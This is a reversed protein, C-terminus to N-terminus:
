DRRHHLLRPDRRPRSRRAHRRGGGAGEGLGAARGDFATPDRRSIALVDNVHQRARFAIAGSCSPRRRRTRWCSRRRGTRSWALLRHAAAARRCLPEEGVGHQLVRLRSGEAHHAFPNRAGNSPEERRDDGARRVPRRLAPFLHRAIRGFIGAFGGEVEGEEERYCAGLLIDGVEATPIATMKEAGVVLAVRGRGGRHLGHASYLAASGTACANEMRVAPVQELGDDGMAVLAGQFDQRQFGNNYCASSSATSM